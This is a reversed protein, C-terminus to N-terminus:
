TRILQLGWISLREVQLWPRHSSRFVTSTESAKKLNTEWNSLTRFTDWISLISSVNGQIIYRCLNWWLVTKLTEWNGGTQQEPEPNRTGPEPNRTGRELNRTGSEQNRIGSKRIILDYNLQFSHYFSHEKYKFREKFLCRIDDDMKRPICLSPLLRISTLWVEWRSDNM